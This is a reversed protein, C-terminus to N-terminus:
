KPQAADPYGALKALLATYSPVATSGNEGAHPGVIYLDGNAIGAAQYAGIDTTANGHGARLKAAHSDLLGKLVDTKFVQVGQESPVVDGADDTLRVVGPPLNHADLWDRSYRNFVQPRGTLYLIRYGKTAWTRIAKDADAYMAAPKGGFVDKFLQWDSTTLTGDVDSVVVQVGKPWVAVMGDASSNDGRVVARVRYDGPPLNAPLDFWAVGDGDTIKSSVLQWGPCKQLYLEVTEDELDKDISGFTFRGRMQASQGPLLILDRVRHNAAGALKAVPSKTPHRWSQKSLAPFTAACHGGSISGDKATIPLPAPQTKATLDDETTAPAAQAEPASDACHPVAFLVSLLLPLRFQM